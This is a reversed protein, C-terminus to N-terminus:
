AAILGELTRDLPLDSAKALIALRLHTDFSVDADIPMPYVTTVAGGGGAEPGGGPRPRRLGRRLRRAGPAHRGGDGEQERPGGAGPDQGQGDSSSSRVISCTEDLDGRLSHHYSFSLM